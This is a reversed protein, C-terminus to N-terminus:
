AGGSSSHGGGETNVKQSLIENVAQAPSLNTIRRCGGGWYSPNCLHVVVGLQLIKLKSILHILCKLKTRKLTSKM